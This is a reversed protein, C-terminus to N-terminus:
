RSRAMAAPSTSSTPSSVAITTVSQCNTPRSYGGDRGSAPPAAHGPEEQGHGFGGLGQGDGCCARRAAPWWRQRRSGCRRTVAFEARRGPPTRRWAGRQFSLRMIGGVLVAGDASSGPRRFLLRLFAALSRPPTTFRPVVHDYTIRTLSGSVPALLGRHTPPNAVSSAALAARSSARTLARWPWYMSRLEIM